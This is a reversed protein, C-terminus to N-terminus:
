NEKEGMAAALIREQTAETSAFEATIKGRHMVIIRDSMALLEPMESTILVIAIGAATWKNMLEYIEHKAGVDVGRTPEDLLFVKPATEIWKAIVVKQQNGGSLADVPMTLSAAKLNMSQGQTKAARAEKAPLLWGFPSYKRIAALTTNHIIDMGLVLGTVKRDNTLMAIGAEIGKAPHSPSYPKGNLTCNGKPASGYSGFIGNLLESNGSGGLGAVGLIEGARVEFSVDSVAPFPKGAPDPVSFNKVSLSVHGPNSRHRPFQQNLERGVMWTVLKQQPLQDAPSTGVYKGDRLVTITDGIRYIEEMKHTIYIIGCGSQKLKAVIAFLKEVEVDTLASTPEDMVIIRSEFALAKCIEVMQQIGLPYDGVDKAVDIDLGASELLKKAMLNMQRKALWLGRCKERGLFVNEAVTMTPILSLEQHIISIGARAADHITSFKVNTGNVAISGTYESYVGALIKMLTSKGAGNEGALIHVEGSNLQFQVDNLVQVGSFSKSIGTMSLLQIKKDQQITM